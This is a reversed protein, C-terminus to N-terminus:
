NGYQESAPSNSLTGARAKIYGSLSVLRVPGLDYKLELSGRYGSTTVLTEHNSRMQFIRYEPVPAGGAGTPSTGAPITGPVVRPALFTPDNHEYSLRVPTRHIRRQAEM